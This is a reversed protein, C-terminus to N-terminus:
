NVSCLEYIFQIHIIRRIPHASGKKNKNINLSTIFSHNIERREELKYIILDYVIKKCFFSSM